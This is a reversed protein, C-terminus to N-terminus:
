LVIMNVALFLAVPPDAFPGVGALLMHHQNAGDGEHTPIRWFVAPRSM